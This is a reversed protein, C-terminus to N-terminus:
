SEQESSEALDEDNKISWGPHREDSIFLDVIRCYRSQFALTVTATPGHRNKVFMLDIEGARPSELDYADPRDLLILVDAIAEILEAHWLDAVEPRTYARYKSPKGVQATVLIPVHLDAAMQKLRYLVEEPERTHTILADVNDIALLRLKGEDALARSEGGLDEINLNPAYSLSLPAAVIESMRRALRTWDEEGMFGSRLVHHPVRAEASLIRMQIEREPMEFSFIATPIGHGVAGAACVTTLLMSKGISPRSAIVILSGPRLGGTLADVDAFGTPVLERGIARSAVAEIEDLTEAMLDAFPRAPRHQITQRVALTALRVKDADPESTNQLSKAVGEWLSKIYEITTEVDQRSKRALAEVLLEVIGWGPLNPGSLAKHITTHSVVGRGIDKQIERTSPYGAKLHLDHLAGFFDSLTGAPLQPQKIRAVPLWGEPIQAYSPTLTQLSCAYVGVSNMWTLM